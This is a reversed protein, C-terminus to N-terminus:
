LLEKIKISIEKLYNEIDNVNNPISINYDVGIFGILINQLDYLPCAIMFKVGKNKLIQNHVSTSQDVIYKYCQNNLFSYIKDTNITIPIIQSNTIESSIGASIVEHTNSQFLFPVNNVGKIGNHFKYIYVRSSDILDDLSEELYFNIKLNNEISKRIEDENYTSFFTSFYDFNTTILYITSLSAVFFILILAQFFMKITSITKLYRLLPIYFLKKLM